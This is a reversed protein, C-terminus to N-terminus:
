YDLKGLGERVVQPPEVTCDVVTSPIWGTPGGDVILDVLPEYFSFTTELDAEEGAAFLDEPKLSATVLVESTMELLAQPIPHDPIRLGITGKRDKLLKPLQNNGNFIFTFPGPFCQKMLRFVENSIPKTFQAAQSIDACLISLRAKKPDLKRLRCIQEIGKNNSSLCGFAYISDTPYLMVAGDRLADAIQRLKRQEPTEPHLTYRVAM